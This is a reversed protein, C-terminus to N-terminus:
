EKLHIILNKNDLEFSRWNALAKKYREKLKNLYPTNKLETIDVGNEDKFTVNPNYGLNIFKHLEKLTLTANYGAYQDLDNLKTIADISNKHSLGDDMNVEIVYKKPIANCNNGCVDSIEDELVIYNTIYKHRNLWEKIQIGRYMCKRPTRDIVRNVYKFKLKKLENILNKMYWSSSIVINADPVRELIFELRKMLHPEIPNMGITDYGHSNYSSSMINLVGDVDLFIIKM